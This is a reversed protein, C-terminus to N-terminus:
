VKEHDGQFLQLFSAQTGTTGKVGRFCLDDRARQLNRMDMTLDQMWLCARKGVTTLQAPRLSLPPLAYMCIKRCLIRNLHDHLHMWVWQYHTFSLTPLDAYKEAFNALRDIVRALQPFYFSKLASNKSLVSNNKMGLSGGYRTLKLKHSLFVSCYNTRYWQIPASCSLSLSVCFSNIYLQIIRHTKQCVASAWRLCSFTLDMVCCLWIRHFYFYVAKLARIAFICIIYLIWVWDWM